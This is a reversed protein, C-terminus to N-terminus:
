ETIADTELNERLIHAPAKGVIGSSRNCAQIVLMWEVTNASYIGIKGAFGVLDSGCRM